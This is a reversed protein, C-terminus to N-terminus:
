NLITQKIEKKHKLVNIKERKSYNDDVSYYVNRSINCEIYELKVKLYWIIQEYYEPLCEVSYGKGLYNYGKVKKGILSSAFKKAKILDNEFEKQEVTKGLYTEKYEGEHWIYKIKFINFDKM